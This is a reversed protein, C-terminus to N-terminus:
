ENLAVWVVESGEAIFPCPFLQVEEKRAIADIRVSYTIGGVYFGAPAYYTKYYVVIDKLQRETLNKVILGRQGTPTFLLKDTWDKRDESRVVGDCGLIADGNFPQKNKEVVLIEGNGPLHTFEFTLIRERQKVTIRADYIHEDANNRLMLAAIGAVESDGGDEPFTGEYSILSLATLETGEVKCPFVACNEDLAGVDPLTNQINLTKLSEHCNCVLCVAVLSGLIMSTIVLIYKVCIMWRM